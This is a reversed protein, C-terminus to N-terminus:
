PRRTRSERAARSRAALEAARAQIREEDTIAHWRTGRRVGSRRIRGAQELERLLTLVQDPDAETQEALARTTLGDSESLLLELKGAPVIEVGTRPKRRTKRRGPGRPRRTRPAQPAPEVGARPTAGSGGELVRLAERLRTAEDELEALQTEISERLQETSTM